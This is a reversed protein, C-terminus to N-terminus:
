VFLFLLYLLVMFLGLALWGFVASKNNKRETEKDPKSETPPANKTKPVRPTYSFPAHSEVYNGCGDCDSLHPCDACCECKDCGCGHESSEHYREGVLDEDWEDDWFDREM